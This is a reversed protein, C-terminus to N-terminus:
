TTQTQAEPKAPGCIDTLGPVAGKLFIFIMHNQHKKLGKQNRLRGDDTHGLTKLEGEAKTM